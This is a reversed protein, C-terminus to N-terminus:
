ESGPKKKGAESKEILELLSLVKNKPPATIKRISEESFHSLMFEQVPFRQYWCNLIKRCPTTGDTSRCYSFKLLHGLMPCYIEQDDYDTIM